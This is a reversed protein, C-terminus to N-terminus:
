EDRRRLHLDAIALSIALVLQAVLFGSQANRMNETSRVEGSLVLVSVTVEFVPMVAVMLYLGAWTELKERATGYPLGNLHSGIRHAGVLSLILFVPSLAAVTAHFDPYEVM